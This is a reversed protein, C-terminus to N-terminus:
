EEGRDLKQHLSAIRRVVEERSSIGLEDMEELLSELRELLLMAGYDAREAPSMGRPLGSAEAARDGSVM